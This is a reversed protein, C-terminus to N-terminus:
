SQKWRVTKGELSSAVMLAVGVSPSVVAADAGLYEKMDIIDKFGANESAKKALFNRGFGTVVIRIKEQLLPKIREYVQKLGGTIQEVQKDYVVKAIHRIEQETLINIDACVVRALRAMAERRTKGRSDCTEAIYDEEKINDLILHVDGSQAFLESSVRARRGRVPIGNVIAAVNTRLAGSYVLEGNQLKELDTRGEAAIKGNIVPIISTTTSGVDVVICNKILQSVMWGTAAWNASAVKLPERRADKVPLMKAKVDLVFTPADDFVETVCDLVHHIGEKKTIYADSLEATITVGIGDPATSDFLRQKLKELVKPLQEQGKKWIPFYEMSTRLKKITGDKTKIFAAKTNAGGIDLGFVNVLEIV